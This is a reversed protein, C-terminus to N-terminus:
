KIMASSLQQTTPDIESQLLSSKAADTIESLSTRAQRASDWWRLPRGVSREVYEMWYEEFLLRRNVKPSPSLTTEMESLNWKTENFVVSGALHRYLHPHLQTIPVTGLGIAEYHRYCEPRDGDPSLVYRSEHMTRYYESPPLKEGSPVLAREPNSDRNIYGAFIMKDKTRDGHEKLEKLYVGKADPNFDAPTGGGQAVYSLGYPFPHHQSWLSPRPALHSSITTTVLCEDMIM